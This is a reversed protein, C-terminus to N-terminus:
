GPRYSKLVISIAWRLSANSVWPIVDSLFRAKGSSQRFDSAASRMIPVTAGRWKLKM